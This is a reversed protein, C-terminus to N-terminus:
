LITLKEKQPSSALSFRPHIYVFLVLFVAVLHFACSARRAIFCVPTLFFLPLLWGSAPLYLMTSTIWNREGRWKLWLLSFALLAVYALTLRHLWKQIGIVVKRALDKRPANPGFMSELWVALQDEKKTQNAM